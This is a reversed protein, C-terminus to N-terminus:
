RSMRSSAATVIKPRSSPARRSRRSASRGCGGWSQVLRRSRSAPGPNVSRWTLVVHFAWDPSSSASWGTWGREAAAAGFRRAAAMSPKGGPWPRGSILTRVLPLRPMSRQAWTLVHGLNLTGIEGADGHAGRRGQGGIVPPPCGTGPETCRRTTATLLAGAACRVDKAAGNARHGDKRRGSVRRLKERAARLDAGARQHCPGYGVETRSPIWSSRSASPPSPPAPHRAALKDRRARCVGASAPAPERNGHRSKGVTTDEDGAKDGLDMSCVAVALRPEASNDFGRSSPIRIM